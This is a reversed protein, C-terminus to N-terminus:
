NSKKSGYVYHIRVVPGVKEPPTPPLDGDIGVWYWNLYYNEDSFEIQTNEIEEVTLILVCSEQPLMVYKENHFFRTPLDKFKIVRM